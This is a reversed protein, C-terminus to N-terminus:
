LLRAGFGADHVAQLYDQPAHPAERLEISCTERDASIEASLVEPLAELAQKVRQACGSCHLGSLGLQMYHVNAAETSNNQKSM